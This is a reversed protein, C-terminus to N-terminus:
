PSVKNQERGGYQKSCGTIGRAPWQSIGTDQSVLGKGVTVTPYVGESADLGKDSQRDVAHLAAFVLGCAHVLCSKHTRIVSRHICKSRQMFSSPTTLGPWQVSHPVPAFPIRISVLWESDDERCEDSIYRCLNHRSNNANWVQVKSTMSHRTALGPQEIHRICAVPGCLRGFMEAISDHEHDRPVNDSRDPGKVRM